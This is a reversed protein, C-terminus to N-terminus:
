GDQRRAVFSLGVVALIAAGSVGALYAATELAYHVGPRPAGDLRVVIVFSCLLLLSGVGAWSRAAPTLASAGDDGSRREAEEVLLAGLEAPTAVPSAGARQLVVSAQEGLQDPGAAPDLAERVHEVLLPEKAVGARQLAAGISSRTHRSETV